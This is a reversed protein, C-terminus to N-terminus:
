KIILIGIGPFVTKMNFHSWSRWTGTQLYLMVRDRLYHQYWKPICQMQTRSPPWINAQRISLLGKLIFVYQLTEVILHVLDRFKFTERRTKCSDKGLGSFSPTLNLIFIFISCRQCAISWSCRLSWSNLQRSLHLKYWLNSSIYTYIHSGFMTM